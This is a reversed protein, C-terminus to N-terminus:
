KKAKFLGKFKNALGLGFISKSAIIKIKDDFEFGSAKSHGGGGFKKAVSTGLDIDHHTTRLSVKGMGMDVMAIYKLDQNRESLVNGLESTYQESFVVGVKNGFVNIKIMQYEKKNIYAEKKQDDMDLVMRDVKDFMDRWRGNYFVFSDMYKFKELYRNIFNQKGLLYFLSNLDVSDKDDYLTKWEWTDYRRVKEVFITLADKYKAGYFMGRNSLYEFFMNTGSNKGLKGEVKVIAWPYKNLYDATFHHDLLTFLTEESDVENIMEAVEESVSIDTIFITHYEKYEEKEIFEKVQESADKPNKVITVDIDNHFALRGVIECGIGDLDNHTFLKVKKVM